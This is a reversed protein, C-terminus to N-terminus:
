SAAADGTKDARSKRRVKRKTQGSQRLQIRELETRLDELSLGRKIEGDVVVSIARTEDASEAHPAFVATPSDGGDQGARFRHQFAARHAQIFDHVRCQRHGPLCLM